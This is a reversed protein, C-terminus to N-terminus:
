HDDHYGKIVYLLIHMIASLLAASAHLGLRLILSAVLCHCYPKWAICQWSGTDM